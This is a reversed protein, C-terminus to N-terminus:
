VGRTINLRDAFDLSESNLTDPFDVSESNPAYIDDVRDGSTVQCKTGRTMQEVDGVLIRYNVEEVPIQRTIFNQLRNTAAYLKKGYVKIGANFQLTTDDQLTSSLYILLLYSCLLWWSVITWRGKQYQDPSTGLEAAQLSIIPM